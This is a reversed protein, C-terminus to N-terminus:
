DKQAWTEIDDPATCGFQVELVKIEEDIKSAATLVGYCQGSGKFRPDKKSQFGYSTSGGSSFIGM